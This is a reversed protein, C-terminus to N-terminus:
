AIPNGGREPTCAIWCAAELRGNGLLGELKRLCAASEKAPATAFCAHETDPKLPGKAPQLLHTRAAHSCSVGRSVTLNMISDIENYKWLGSREKFPLCSNLYFM